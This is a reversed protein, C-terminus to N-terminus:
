LVVYIVGHFPNRPLIISLCNPVRLAMLIVLATSGGSGKTLLLDGLFLYAFIVKPYTNLYFFLLTYSFCGM